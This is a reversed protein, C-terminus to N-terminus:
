KKHKSMLPLWWLFGFLMCMVVSKLPSCVYKRGMRYGILILEVFHLGALGILLYPTVQLVCLLLAAIWLVIATPYTIKQNM